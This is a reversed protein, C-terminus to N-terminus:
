FYYNYGNMVKLEMYHIGPLAGQSPQTRGGLLISLKLGVSLASPCVCWWVLITLCGLNLFEFTASHVIIPTVNLVKLGFKISSPHNSVPFIQM